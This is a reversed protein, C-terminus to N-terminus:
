LEDIGHHNLISKVDVLWPEYHRWRQVANSYIKQRVQVSSATAVPSTNDQFNMCQNQWPLECYELLSQTQAETDAVLSEYHIQHFRGPLNQTFSEILQHFQVYFDATDKLSYAYNYYSFRSSFLQRFNSLCTDMPNRRLCIIKANPLARIILPIYMFNLPMKDIFYESHGTLHRTSEIYDHGLKKFDLRDSQAITERDLVWPSSTGLQRKVLLSFNALEGASEVQSHSSLIREVLTTGTRPMGVIFIPEQSSYGQEAPDPSVNSLTKLAAFIDESSSHTDAVQALKLQKADHLCEMSRKYNGIDEYEKAMAHGIHLKAEADEGLELWLKELTDLNNNQATQKRLQSLSSHSRYHNPQLRIATEYATEAEEFKGSFQLCAARNYQFDVNDPTLQCSRNFYPLAESHQGLRTHLVGLTDNQHASALQRQSLSAVMQKAREHQNMELLCQAQFLLYNANEADFKLARSVIDEAKTINGHQHAILAMIFFADGTRPNEQLVKTALSHATQYDREAMAQHATSLLKAHNAAMTMIHTDTNKPCRGYNDCSM